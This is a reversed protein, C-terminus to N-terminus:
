DRRSGLLFGVVCGVLAAVTISTWTNDRVYQDTAQGIDRAKEAATKQWDQVKDTLDRTNM